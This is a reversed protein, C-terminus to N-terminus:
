EKRRNPNLVKLVDVAIKLEERAERLSQYLVKDEHGHMTRMMVDLIDDLLKLATRATFQADDITTKPNSM